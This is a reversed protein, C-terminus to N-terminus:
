ERRKGGAASRLPRRAAEGGDCLGMVLVDKWQGRKFAHRRLTGEGEFGCKEYLRMAPRNDALVELHLRRLGLTDFAHRILRRVAQEGFGKNRQASDGILVHLEGRRAVWDINKLYINGIHRRSGALCIALSVENAAGRIRAQLWASEADRSVHRFTGGLWEYLEPDNHWRLCRELDETELARLFVTQKTKM